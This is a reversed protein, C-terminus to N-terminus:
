QLASEKLAKREKVRFPDRLDFNPKLYKDKKPKPKPKPKSIM